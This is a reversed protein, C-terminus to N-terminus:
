EEKSEAKKKPTVEKQKKLGKQIGNVGRSLGDFITETYPPNNEHKKDLTSSPNFDVSRIANGIFENLILNPSEPLSEIMRKYGVLTRAMSEKHAYEQHLRENKSQNQSAYLALWTVGMFLPLRIIVQALAEAPQTVETIENLSIFGFGTIGVMALVAVISWLREPSAYTSKQDSYTKALGASTAGPLLSEVKRHLDKYEKEHELRTTSIEELQKNIESYLGGTREGTDDQEGFVLDYIGQIEKGSSIIKKEIKDSEVKSTNISESNSLASQEMQTISDSTSKLTEEITTARNIYEHLTSDLSSHKSLTDQLTSIQSEINAIDEKMKNLRERNSAM